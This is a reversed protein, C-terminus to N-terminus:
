ILKTGGFSSPTSPTVFQQPRPVFPAVARRLTVPTVTPTIWGAYQAVGFGITAASGLLIVKKIIGDEDRPKYWYYGVLGLAGVLFPLVVGLPIGAVDGVGFQPALFMFHVAGFAAAGVTAAAVGIAVKKWMEAM